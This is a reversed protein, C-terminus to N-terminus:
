LSGLRGLRRKFPIDLLYTNDMLYLDVKASKISLMNFWSLISSIYMLDLLNVQPGIASYALKLKNFLYTNYM